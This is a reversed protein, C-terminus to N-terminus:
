ARTRVDRTPAEQPLPVFLGVLSGCSDAAARALRTLRRRGRFVAIPLLVACCAGRAFSTLFRVVLRWPSPAALRLYRSYNFGGLYSRRLLWRLRTRELPVKEHVIAEDSWVLVAGRRVLVGTFYTDEGGSHNFASPFRVDPNRKLAAGSVLLNGCGAYPLRAGTLYRPRSALGVAAPSWPFTSIVPGAVLDASYLLATEVLRRLWDKSVTQDDDIFAVFDAELRVAETLLANRAYSYGRRPELTHVTQRFVGRYKAVVHEAPEDPANDGVVLTVLETPYDLKGLSDLLADLHAARGATPVCVAVHPLTKTM